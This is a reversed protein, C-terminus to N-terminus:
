GRDAWGGSTRRAVVERRWAWRLSLEARRRRVADRRVDRRGLAAAVLGSGTAVAVATAAAWTDVAM